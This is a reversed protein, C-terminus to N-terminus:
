TILDYGQQLIFLATRVTYVTGLISPLMIIGTCVSVNLYALPSGSSDLESKNLCLQTKKRRKQKMMM